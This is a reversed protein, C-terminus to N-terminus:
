TNITSILTSESSAKAELEVVHSQEYADDQGWRLCSSVNVCVTGSSSRTSCTHVRAYISFRRKRATKAIFTVPGLGGTFSRSLIAGCDFNNRLGKLKINSDLDVIELEVDCDDLNWKCVIRVDCPMLRWKRTSLTRPLSSELWALDMAAIIEIQSFRAPWGGRVVRRLLSLARQKDNKDNRRQLLMALDRFSQPEEKRLQLIREFAAISVDLQNLAELRYAVLRYLQIDNTKL